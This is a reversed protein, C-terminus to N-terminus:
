REPPSAALGSAVQLALQTRDRLGLKRLAGSVHNKVTGETLHLRVAIERNSAGRAVLEAVEFERTTLPETPAQSVPGSFRGARVDRALTAVASQGLVIEGGAVRRLASVIHDPDADKLLHGRAGARLAGYVYEDEEFTTLLLCAVMPLEVRLDDILAIGDRVPMRADILAVDPLAQRAVRLGAVGDAAEGVISLDSEVSLLTRLGRRILEQDDVLLIRIV